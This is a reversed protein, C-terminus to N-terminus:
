GISPHLKEWKEEAEPRRIYLPLLDGAPTFQGAAALELGVHCVHEPRPRALDDDLVRAGSAVIADRHYPVGEGLVALPTPLSALFERPDSLVPGALRHVQGDTIRFAAAYVQDRKADLITAVHEPTPQALMANRALADLTPVAVLRVGLSWGMTRAMSIGIRLGTFSGPGVSVFVDTLSSPPWGQDRLLADVTAVYEASHRMPASLGRSAIVGQSTALASSGWRSSTEIILIRAAADFM